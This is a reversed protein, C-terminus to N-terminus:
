PRQVASAAHALEYVIVQRQDPDALASLEAIASRVVGGAMEIVSAVEQLDVSTM